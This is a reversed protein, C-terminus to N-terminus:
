ELNENADESWRTALLSNLSRELNILKNLEILRADANEALDKRDIERTIVDEFLAAFEDIKRFVKMRSEMEAHSQTVSVAIILILMMSLFVLM